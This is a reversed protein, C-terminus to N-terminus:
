KWAQYCGEMGTHAYKTTAMRELYWRVVSSELVVTLMSSIALSYSTMTRPVPSYGGMQQGRAYAMQSM